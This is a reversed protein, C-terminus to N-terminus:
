QSVRKLTGNLWAEKSTFQFVRVGIYKYHPIVGSQNASYDIVEYGIGDHVIIDPQTGTTDDAIQLRDAGYFKCFDTARRGEPLSVLDRGTVVPQGSLMATTFSRAGPVWIGAVYTGPAERLIGKERRFFSM